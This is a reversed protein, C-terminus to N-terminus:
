DVRPESQRFFAFVGHKEACAWTTSNASVPSKFDGPWIRSHPNSDRGPCEPHLSTAIVLARHHRNRPSKIKTRM